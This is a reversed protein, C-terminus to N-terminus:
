IIFNIVLLVLLLVLQTLDVALGQGVQFPKIHKRGFDLIPLFISNFTDFAGKFQGDLRDKHPLLKSYLFLGFILFNVFYKVLIIM